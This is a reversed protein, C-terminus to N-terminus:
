IIHTNFFNLKAMKWHSYESVNNNFNKKNENKRRNILIFSSVAFLITLSIRFIMAYITKTEYLGGSKIHVLLGIFAILLVISSIILAKTTWKRNKIFGYAAIIYLISSIFNSIVVFLVYNGEKVRIDFLDFIVSSSLFYTILGFVALFAAIIYTIIKDIKLNM